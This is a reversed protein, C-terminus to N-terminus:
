LLKTIVFYDGIRSQMEPPDEPGIDWAGTRIEGEVSIVEDVLSELQDASVASESFQIFYDGMGLRLYLEMVESPKGVKNVFPKAIVHGTYSGTPRKNM